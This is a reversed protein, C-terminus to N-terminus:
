ILSESDLGFLSVKLTDARYIGTFLGKPLPTGRDLGSKVPHSKAIILRCLYAPALCGKCGIPSSHSNLFILAKTCNKGEKYCYRVTKMKRDQDLHRHSFPHM